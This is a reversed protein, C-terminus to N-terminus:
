KGFSALLNTAGLKQCIDSFIDHPGVWRLEDLNEAIPVDFRLTALHRYLLAEERHNTLNEHLRRAGRVKINWDEFKTPINELHQYKSLLIASSKAGWRPVGPIGDASDGVLALYDPISAPSIGYKELVADEDYVIERRRDWCVVKNASVLQAFDKDPSCIVVQEIAPNNKFRLAATALADDAEFKVM